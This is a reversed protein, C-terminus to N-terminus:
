YCGDATCHAPSHGARRGQYQCSYHPVFRDTICRECGHVIGTRDAYSVSESELPMVAFEATLYQHGTVLIGQYAITPKVEVTFM